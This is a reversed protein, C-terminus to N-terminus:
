GDLRTFRVSSGLTKNGGANENLVSFNGSNADRWDFMTREGGDRPVFELRDGVIRATVYRWISGGELKQTKANFRGKLSVIVEASQQEEVSMVILLAPDVGLASKRVYQFSGVKQSDRSGGSARHAILGPPLPLGNEQAYAYAKSLEIIRSPDGGWRAGGVAASGPRPSGNISFPAAYNNRDFLVQRGQTTILLDRRLRSSLSQLDVSADNFQRLFSAAFPSNQGAPGDLAIRGPATSFLVLSNPAGAAGGRQGESTYAIVANREAELQRWGDAPNNRCNDYVFLRNAAGRTAKGPALSTVLNQVTSPSSLDADVPVLYTERGWTAGHGAFYFAAFNAGNAAAGFKEFARNMADRGADQVLDTKLGLSQFHKAIDPADRRVNPLQAEWAYKSNGIVLAVGSTQANAHIAPFALLSGAGAIAARRGIAPRAKLRTM